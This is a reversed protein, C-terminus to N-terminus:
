SEAKASLLVKLREIAHPYLLEIEAAEYSHGNVDIGRVEDGKLLLFLLPRKEGNASMARDSSRLSVRVEVIAAFAYGSVRMPTDVAWTM